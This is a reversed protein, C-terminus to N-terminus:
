VIRELSRALEDVGEETTAWSCMFRVTGDAFRFARWGAAQLREYAVDDMRVFVANTQVPHAIEFPMLAVLRKAMANAHRARDIWAGTELMGVWPAALFRSKSILQGAQKLREGFGRTRGSAFIVIAETSPMGSKAGGAVLFDVGARQLSRLDLGSAAANSLRAGDLHIALSHAKAIRGLELLEGESYLTGYETANSLSLAAPAQSSSSQPKELTERLTKGAIKGSAGPLRISGLGKGFFAPAGAEETFIHAHEHGVVSEHPGCSAALSIANAATGTSCFYVEADADLLARLLDGARKTVADKGYSPEVGENAGILARLAEPAIGSVNDSAFDFRM